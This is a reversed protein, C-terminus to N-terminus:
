YYDVYDVTLSQHLGIKPLHKEKQFDQWLKIWAENTPDVKIGKSDALKIAEPYANCWATVVAVNTAQRKDHAPTWLGKEKLYKILGDHAPIMTRELANMLADITMHENTDFAERYRPYNEDLWKAFYYVLEPDSGARTVELTAGTTGWKGRAEPVGSLIPGFAYAPDNKRFRAAGDPDKDSNLDLFRIGYPASAAEYIAPSTPFGFMIDARGEAVARACGDYSGTNVWVIQDHPLQIWDAIAKPVKLVTPQMSWVAWRIGPKIDYITKIPSDGRVFIGSNSIAHMWVVRMQWPGGDRVAHGETAEIVNGLERKGGKVLFAKGTQVQIYRQISNEEPVVRISVGTDKEMLTTWSVYKALGSGGGSTIILTRPWQWGSATTQPSGGCGSFLLALLVVSVLASLTILNVRRRKM